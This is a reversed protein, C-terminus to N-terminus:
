GLSESDPSVLRPVLASFPLRESEKATRPKLEVMGQRANKEGVTIRFPCGILDADNFKVGAHEDRDDFLVAVGASQLIRYLEEAQAYTDLEKGPIHMIYADFPAAGRPLTLGKEDHHVEALAILIEDLCLGQPSALLTARLLRMPHACNPCPDNEAALALDATIDATYDRGHNVNKWHYGAQNAGAVLNASHPVLDDAIILAGRLGIPSAYGAVAGARAIEEPGAPRVEGVLAKLKAESLPMDGRLVVFVFQGDSLRTFMLAKATRAKPINLFKALAEITNCEPTSVKELPLPAEAAPPTKKFRATERRSAYGCSPCQLIETEGGDFAFFAEEEQTRIVPLGLREFLTKPQAQALAHLRELAIQGLATAQGQRTLYNARVLWAFGPTRAQSPAQRQTQIQLQSYRM